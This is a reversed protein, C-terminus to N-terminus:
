KHKLIWIFIINLIFSFIGIVITCARIINDDMKMVNSETCQKGMIEQLNLQYLICFLLFTLILSSMLIIISGSKSIKHLGDRHKNAMINFTENFNTWNFALGMIAWDCTKVTDFSVPISYFVNPMIYSLIPIIGIIFVGFTWSIFWM